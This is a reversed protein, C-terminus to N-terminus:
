KSSSQQRARYEVLAGRWQRPTCIRRRATLTSLGAQVAASVVASKPQRSMAALSDVADATASPLRVLYQRHRQTM